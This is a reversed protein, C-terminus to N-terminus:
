SSELKFHVETIEYYDVTLDFKALVTDIDKEVIEQATAIDVGGLHRVLTYRKGTGHFSSASEWMERGAEQPLPATTDFTVVARVIM